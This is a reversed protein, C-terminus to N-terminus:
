LRELIIVSSKELTSCESTEKKYRIEVEIQRLGREKELAYLM